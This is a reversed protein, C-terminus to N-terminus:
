PGSKTGQSKQSNGFSFDGKFPFLNWVVSSIWSFVIPCSIAVPLVTHLGITGEKFPVSTDNNQTRHKRNCRKWYIDRNKMTCPQIGEPCVKRERLKDAGASVTSRCLRRHRNKGWACVTPGRSVAPPSQIVPCLWPWHQDQYNRSCNKEEDHKGRTKM